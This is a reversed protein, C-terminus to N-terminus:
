VTPSPISLLLEQSRLRSFTSPGPGPRALTLEPPEWRPSRPLM